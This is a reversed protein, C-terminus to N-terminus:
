DPLDQCRTPALNKRLKGEVNETWQTIFLTCCFAAFVRNMKITVLKPFQFRSKVSLKSILSSVLSKSFNQKQKIDLFHDNIYIPNLKNPLRQSGHRKIIRKFALPRM